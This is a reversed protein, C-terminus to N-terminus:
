EAAKDVTQSRLARDVSEPDAAIVALYAKAVADPEIEHREWATVTELPIGFRTAFGERGLGLKWRIRKSLAVPRMRKLEDETLPPNDPDSLADALIEEETMPRIPRPVLVDETGDPLIRVLTGDAKRVKSTITM